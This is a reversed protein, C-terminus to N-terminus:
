MWINLNYHEGNVFEGVSASHMGIWNPGYIFEYKHVVEIISGMLMLITIISIVDDIHYVDTINNMVMSIHVVCTKGIILGAIVLTCFKKKIKNEYYDSCTKFYFFNFM